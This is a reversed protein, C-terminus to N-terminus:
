EDYCIVRNSIKSFTESISTRPIYLKAYPYKYLTYRLSYEIDNESIESFKVIFIKRNKVSNYLYCCFLIIGSIIWLLIYTYAFLTM